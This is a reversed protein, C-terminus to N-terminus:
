PRSEALPSRLFLLPVRETLADINRRAAATLLAMSQL